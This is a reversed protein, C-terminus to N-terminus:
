SILDTLDSTIGVKTCDKKISSGINTLFFKILKM